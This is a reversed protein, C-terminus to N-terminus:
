VERGMVDREFQEIIDGLSGYQEVSLKGGNKNWWDLLDTEFKNIDNKISSVEELAKKTITKTDALGEKLSQSFKQVQVKLNEWEKEANTIMEMEDPNRQWDCTRKEFEILKEIANM